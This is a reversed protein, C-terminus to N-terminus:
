RTSDDFWYSFLLWHGRIDFDFSFSIFHDDGNSECRPYRGMDFLKEIANDIEGLQGDEVKFAFGSAQFYGRFTESLDPYQDLRQIMYSPVETDTICESDYIAQLDWADSLSEEFVEMIQASTVEDGNAHLEPVYEKSILKNKM